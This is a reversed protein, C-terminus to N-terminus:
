EETHETISYMEYSIDFDNLLIRNDQSDKLLFNDPKYDCHNIKNEKLNFKVQLLQEFITLKEKLTFLNKDKNRNELVTKFSIYYPM